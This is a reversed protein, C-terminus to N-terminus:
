LLIFNLVSFGLAYFTLRKRSIFDIHHAFEKEKNSIFLRSFNINFALLNRSPLSKFLIYHITATIKFMAEKPNESSCLIIDTRVIEFLAISRPIMISLTISGLM